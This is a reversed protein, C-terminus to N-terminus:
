TIGRRRLHHQLTLCSSLSPSIHTPALCPGAWANREFNNRSTALRRKGSVGKTGILEVSVNADTGAFKMDSTHVEVKYKLTQSKAKSYHRLNCNFAFSSLM